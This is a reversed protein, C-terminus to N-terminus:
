PPLAPHQGPQPPGHEDEGHRYSCPLTSCCVTARPLTPIPRAPTAPRVGTPPAPPPPPPLPHTPFGPRRTAVAAAMCRLSRTPESSYYDMKEGTDKQWFDVKSQDNRGQYTWGAAAPNCQNYMTIPTASCSPIVTAPLAASPLMECKVM